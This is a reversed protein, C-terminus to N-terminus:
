TMHRTHTPGADHMWAEDATQRRLIQQITAVPALGFEDRGIRIANRRECGGGIGFCSQHSLHRPFLRLCRCLLRPTGDRWTLVAPIAVDFVQRSAGTDIEWNIHLTRAERHAINMPRLAIALDREAAGDFHRAIDINTDIEDLAA